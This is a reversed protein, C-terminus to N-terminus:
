RLWLNVSAANVGEYSLSRALLFHGWPAFLRFSSTYTSEEPKIAKACMQIGIVRQKTAQECIGRIWRGSRERNM